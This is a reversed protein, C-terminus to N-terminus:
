FKGVLQQDLSFPLYDLFLYVIGFFTIMDSSVSAAHVGSPNINHATCPLFDAYENIEFIRARVGKYKGCMNAGNDYCQGRLNKIDIGDTKLKELIENALGEGTKEHSDIFDIFREEITVKGNFIKVYRVIQSM